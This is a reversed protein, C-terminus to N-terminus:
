FAFMTILSSVLSKSLLIGEIPMIATHVSGRKKVLKCGCGESKGLENNTKSNRVKSESVRAVGEHNEQREKECEEV